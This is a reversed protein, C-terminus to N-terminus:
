FLGKVENIYTERPDASAWKVLADELEKSEQLLEDIKDQCLSSISMRLCMEIDDDSMNCHQKLEAKIEEKKRGLFKLRGDLVMDVFTAKINAQWLLKTDRKIYAAFRDAIRDIRFKVFDAILDGPNKYQRLKGNEDIVTLNESLIERLGFLKIIAEDDSPVGGRKFKIRFKFGNSGKGCEDEYDNIKGIDTLKDLRGVFGKRDYSPPLEDILLESSSLRKFSGTIRWRETGPEQDVTCRTNLYAPPVETAAVPLGKAAKLCAEAIRKPDRPQIKTAFGIAIGSTGNILVWPIMPLYYIPEPIEPDAHQPLIDNDSFFKGFNKHVKVSTYRPASMSRDFRNGFNGSGELIPANNNWSAILKGIADNMSADGHHYGQKMTEGTLAVTKVFSRASLLASYLAKRQSPKFGDVMSPIARDELVYMSYDYYSSNILQTISKTNM